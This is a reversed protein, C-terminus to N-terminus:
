DPSEAVEVAVSLTHTGGGMVVGKAPTVDGYDPSPSIPM